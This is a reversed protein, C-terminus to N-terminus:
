NACSSQDPNARFLSWVFDLQTFRPKGNASFWEPKPSGVHGNGSPEFICLRTGDTAITARAHCTICSSTKQFGEEPQSNALLTIDGRATTFDVQTGRLRYNEWVTGELGIGKPAQNCDSSQGACAFTDHSAIQWPENGPFSPNDVHEFTAWFWNPLDKTTIHLATLGVILKKGDRTIETWHYRPKQTETIERWQAKIEKAPLPFQISVQGKAAVAKQGALNFLTNSRIFEYADKNLRTENISMGATDPDVKPQPGGHVARLAQQLPLEDFESFSRVSSETNASGKALSLWPGPDGGTPTIIFRANAWTEWVVPGHEGLKKSNDAVKNQVDAPWNLAVFLRWAYADPTNIASGSDQPDSVPDAAIADLVSANDFKAAKTQASNDRGQTCGLVMLCSSLITLFRKV